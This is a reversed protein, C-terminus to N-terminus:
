PKVINFITQNDVKIVYEGSPENCFSVKVTDNGQQSMVVRGDTNTVEILANENLGHLFVTGPLPMDFDQLFSMASVELHGYCLQALNELCNIMVMGDTEIVLYPKEIKLKSNEDILCEMTIGDITTALVTSSLKIVGMGLIFDILETVDKISVEGDGDVDANSGDSENYGLIVDILTTVDKISVDGDCDVDGPFLTDDIAQGVLNVFAMYFMGSDHYVVSLVAQHYGVDTPSYSVSLTCQGSTQIISASFMQSDIGSISVSYNNEDVVAQTQNVGMFMVPLDPDFPKPNDSFTFDVNRTVTQGIRATFRETQDSSVMDSSITEAALGHGFALVFAILLLVTQKM